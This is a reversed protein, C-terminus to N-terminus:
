IKAQMVLNNRLPMMKKILEIIAKSKKDLQKQQGDIQWLM